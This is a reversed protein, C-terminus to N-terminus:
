VPAAHVATFLRTWAHQWPWEVPLHLVIHRARHATRAAVNINENRITAARAKGDRPGPWTDPLASCTTRSPPASSGPPTANFTESPLHALPGDILDANLQEIVAHGRHQAEARGCRPMLRSTGTGVVVDGNAVIVRSRWTSRVSTSPPSM